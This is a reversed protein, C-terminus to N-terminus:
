AFSMWIIPEITMGRFRMSCVVRRITAHIPPDFRLCEELFDPAPSPDARLRALLEPGCFLIVMANGIFHTTTVHGAVLRQVIVGYGM